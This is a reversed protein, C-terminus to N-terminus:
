AGTAAAAPKTTTASSGAAINTVGAIPLQKGNDLELVVGDKQVKVSNVIGKVTNLEDDIGEVSKGILNGASGIQNQLVLGKISDTLTNNAQLQGIQSMQSLLQANDAPKTPDQNQLQTVMMNIFDQAKLDFGKGKIQNGKSGSAIPTTVMPRVEAPPRAFFSFDSQTIQAPAPRARPLFNTRPIRRWDRGGGALGM